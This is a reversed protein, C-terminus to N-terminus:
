DCPFSASLFSRMDDSHYMHDRRLLNSLMPLSIQKQEGNVVTEIHKLICDQEEKNLQYYSLKHDNEAM